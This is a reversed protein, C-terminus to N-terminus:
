PVAPPVEIKMAQPEQAPRFMTQAMLTPIVASLIVATVLATYQSRDIYGHTLGYLAAITGFTLGTSMVLALYKSDRPAYKFMRAVPLVGAAKASVKVAFLMSILAIERAADALSVFTGAKMFYFPTLVTMTMTQLRRKVDEYSALMNACALGLFYAPLVGESKAYTAVASLLFFVTFLIRVGPESISRGSREFVIPVVKPVVIMAVIVAVTLAALWWNYTAFLLALAVVTGLDTFFCSALILQGFKTGVRGSEVVVAYVVAVSTTSMAIGAIKAGDLTWHAGFFAYAGAAVFPLAFSAFGLSVAPVIQERLIKPDIESGALFTLLVAGFGAIFDVWANTHLGLVNGAFVGVVIEILAVVVTFRVALLASISALVM